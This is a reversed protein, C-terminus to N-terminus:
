ENTQEEKRIILRDSNKNKDAWVIIGDKCRTLFCYQKGKSTKSIRGMSVVYGAYPLVDFMKLDTQNEIILKDM